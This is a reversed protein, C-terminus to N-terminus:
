NARSLDYPRRDEYSLGLTESLKFWDLYTSFITLAMSESNNHKMGSLAVVAQITKKAIVIAKIVSDGKSLAVKRKDLSNFAIGLAPMALLYKSGASLEELEDCFELLSNSITYVYDKGHLECLGRMVGHATLLSKKFADVTDFEWAYQLAEDEIVDEVRFEGKNDIYAEANSKFQANHINFCFDVIGTVFKSRTLRREHNFFDLDDFYM